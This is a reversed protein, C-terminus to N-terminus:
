HARRAGADDLHVLRLRVVIPQQEARRRRAAALRAEGRQTRPDCALAARAEGGRAARPAAAVRRRVRARGPTSHEGLLRLGVDRRREGLPAVHHRLHRLREGHPEHREVRRRDVLAGPALARGDLRLHGRVSPNQPPLWRRRLPWQRWVRRWCRRRRRRRRRRRPSSLHDPVFRDPPEALEGDAGARRRRRLWGPQRRGAASGCRRRGRYWPRGCFWLPPRPQGDGVKGWTWRGPRRLQTMPRLFSTRSQVLPVVPSRSVENPARTARTPWRM